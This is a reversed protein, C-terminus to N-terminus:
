PEWEKAASSRISRQDILGDHASKLLLGRFPRPSGAPTDRERGEHVRKERHCHQGGASSKAEPKHRSSISSNIISRQRALCPFGVSVFSQVFSFAFFADFFRHPCINTSHGRSAWLCDERVCATLSGHGGQDDSRFQAWEESRDESWCEIINEIM